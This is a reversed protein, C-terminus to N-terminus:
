LVLREDVHTIRGLDYEINPVLRRDIHQPGVKEPVAKEVAPLKKEVTPLMKETPLPGKNVPPLIPAAVVSSILASLSLFIINPQM